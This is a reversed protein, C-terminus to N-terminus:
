QVITQESFAMLWQGDRKIWIRSVRVPKDSDRKHMATMIVTDGFDFMRASVLPIPGSPTGAQKQRDLIALRDAKTFPHDNNSNILLFEDAVHQGWIQSDHNTVATELAQWSTIIGREADNKPEYPLTKCPNECDKPRPGGSRAEEALTAEHYVLLHWGNSAKVWFRAAHTKGSTALILGVNGYLRQEIEAGIAVAPSAPPAKLVEARTYTKGASDTWTFGQDLISSLARKDSSSAAQVFASDAKSLGPDDAAFANPLLQASSFVLLAFSFVAFAKKVTM